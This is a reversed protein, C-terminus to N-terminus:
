EAAVVKGLTFDVIEEATVWEPYHTPLLWCGGAVSLCLPGVTRGDELTASLLVSGVETPLQPVPRNDLRVHQEERRTDTLRVDSQTRWDGESDQHHAVGTVTHNVDLSPWSM